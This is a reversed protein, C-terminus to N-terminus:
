LLLSSTTFYLLNFIVQMPLEGESLSVVWLHCKHQEELMTLKLAGGGALKRGDTPLRQWGVSLVITTSKKSDGGPLSRRCGIQMGIAGGAGCLEVAQTCVFLAIGAANQPGPAVLDRPSRGLNRLHAAARLM